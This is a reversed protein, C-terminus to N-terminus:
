RHSGRWSRECSKAEVDSMLGSLYALGLRRHEKRGYFEYFNEHFEVLEGSINEMDEETLDMIPALNPNWRCHDLLMKLEETTENSKPPRRFPERPKKRCGIIERFGPKLIYVFVDKVHGHYCYGKGQKGYGRTQGLYKWNAGKYCTGTFYRPDVFTELLLLEIGFEDMWDNRLRGINISLLRSALNHSRVWPLILFRSNCAIQRLRSKRQEDSWGIYRDRVHLKLAPASWSLAAIPADGSFAIYKLRRGLLRRYGLYHHKRVLDNWLGDLNRGKVPLLQLQTLEGVPKDIPVPRIKSKSREM